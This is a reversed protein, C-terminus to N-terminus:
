AGFYLNKDMSSGVSPMSQSPKAAARAQLEPYVGDFAGPLKDSPKIAAVVEARTKTSHFGADVPQYDKPLAFASGAAILLASAAVLHKANLAKYM